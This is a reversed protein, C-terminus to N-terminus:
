ESGLLCRIMFAPLSNFYWFKLVDVCVKEQPTTSFRSRPVKGSYLALTCSNGESIFINQSVCLQWNWSYFYKRFMCRYKYAHKCLIMTHSWECSLFWLDFIHTSVSIIIVLLKVASHATTATVFGLKPQHRTKRHMWCYLM